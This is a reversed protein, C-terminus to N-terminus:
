DAKEFTHMWCDECNGAELLILREESIEHIVFYDGFEFVGGIDPVTEMQNSSVLIFPRTPDDNNDQFEIAAEKIALWDPSDNDVRITLSGNEVELRHKMIFANGAILDNIPEVAQDSITKGSIVWNWTGNITSVDFTPELPLNKEECSFILAPLLAIFLLKKM